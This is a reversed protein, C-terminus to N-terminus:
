VAPFPADSHAAVVVRNRDIWYGWAVLLWMAQGAIAISATNPPPPGFINALQIGVLFVVLTVLTWTGRRNRPSTIRVYVLVGIVM